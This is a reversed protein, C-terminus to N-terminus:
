TMKVGNVLAGEWPTFKMELGIAQMADIPISLRSSCSARAYDPLITMMGDHLNISKGNYHSTKMVIAVQVPSKFLQSDQLNSRINDGLAQSFTDQHNRLQTIDPGMDTLASKVMTVIARQLQAEPATSMEGPLPERVKISTTNIMVGMMGNNFLFHEAFQSTQGTDNPTGDVPVETPPDTATVTINLQLVQQPRQWRVLPQNQIKIGTGFHDRLISTLKDYTIESASFTVLGKTIILSSGTKLYSRGDASTGLAQQVQEVTEIVARPAVMIANSCLRYVTNSSADGPSSSLTALTNPNVTCIYQLQLLNDYVSFNSLFRSPNLMRVTFIGNVCAIATNKLKSQCMSKIYNTTPFLPKHANQTGFPILDKAICSHAADQPFLMFYNGDASVLETPLQELGTIIRGSGLFIPLSDSGTVGKIFNGQIQFEGMTLTGTSAAFIDAASLIRMNRVCITDYHIKQVVSKFDLKADTPATTFHSVAGSQANIIGQIAQPLHTLSGLLAISEISFFSM